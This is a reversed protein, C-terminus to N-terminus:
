GRRSFVLNVIRKSKSKKNTNDVDDPKYNNLVEIALKIEKNRSAINKFNKIFYRDGVNKELLLFDEKFKALTKVKENLITGLKALNDANSKKLFDEIKNNFVFSDYSVFIRERFMIFRLLNVIDDENIEEIDYNDYISVDMHCEQCYKYLYLFNLQIIKFGM